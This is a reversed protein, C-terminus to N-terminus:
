LSFITKIFSIKRHQTRHDNHSILFQLEDLRSADRKGDYKFLLQSTSQTIVPAPHLAGIPKRM